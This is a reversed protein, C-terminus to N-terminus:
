ENQSGTRVETFRLSDVMDDSQETNFNKNKADEQSKMSKINESSKSNNKKRQRKLINLKKTPVRWSTIKGDLSASLFANQSM